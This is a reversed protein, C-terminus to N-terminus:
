AIPYTTFFGPVDECDVNQKLDDDCVRHLWANEPRWPGKDTEVKELMKRAEATDSEIKVSLRQHRITTLTM